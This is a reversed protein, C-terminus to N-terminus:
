KSCYIKARKEYSVLTQMAYADDRMTKKYTAAKQTFLKCLRENEAKDTTDTAAFATSSLTILILLLLKM